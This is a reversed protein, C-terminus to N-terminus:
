SCLRKNLKSLAKSADGEPFKFFISELSLLKALFEYKQHHYELELIINDRVTGDRIWLEGQILGISGYIKVPPNLHVLENKERMYNNMDVVM